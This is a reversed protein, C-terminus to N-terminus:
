HCGNVIALANGVAREGEADSPRNVVDLRTSPGGRRVVVMATSGGGDLNIADTAGLDLALRALERLTMGASHGARRGDVVVLMLRRGGAASVVMTRPHRVPAFTAAGASDLGAVESGNRVLVPFGGVAERPHFPALRVSVEFRGRARAVLLFRARVDGPAGAGLVLVGGRAPIPTPGGATDIGIVEGSSLASLAVRVSGRATDVREGFAADYIALGGPAARNWAAIPYSEAGARATGEVRFEGMHPRGASDLAFVPRVGPGATVRGEHVHLGTPVGPPDFLFFDANVGGAVDRRVAGDPTDAEISRMLASTTLRGEARAAGKVAVPTWCQARDVDLIHIAWPGRRVVFARYLVGRAITDVGSSDAVLRPEPLEASWRPPPTRVLGACAATFPLTLLITRAVARAPATM